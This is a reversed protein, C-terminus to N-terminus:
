TQRLLYNSGTPLHRLAARVEAEAAGTIEVIIPEASAPHPEGVAQATESANGRGRAANDLRLVNAHYAAIAAAILLLGLADGIEVFPREGGVNLLLSLLQSALWVASGLVVLISLSLCAFVYIRRSLALREEVPAALRWHLLWVPLGVLIFTVSLSIRDRIGLLSDPGVGPNAVLDVLAWLLIAAGSALVGLALIAVLHGYLRRVGAQHQTEGAAGGGTIEHRMLAWAAAFVLLTAIAGSIATLPDSPLGSPQQVGLLRALLWHLIQGASFLTAIVSTALVWFGYVARLTSRNDSERMPTGATWHRHILWVTVGVLTRAVDAATGAASDLISAGSFFDVLITSLLASAGFLAVLLGVLQAGYAYWRRLTASGGAEGVSSRDAAAIHWTYAFGAASVAIEWVVRVIDEAGVAAGAGLPILLLGTILRYALVSVTVLLGSLVGYLYLRRLTAAKEASDRNALRQAIGWHVLWVPLAVLTMAGFTAITGRYTSELGGSAMVLEILAAGGLSVGTVLTALGAAAVLYVYLRRITPM